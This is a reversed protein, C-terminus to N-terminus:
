IDMDAQRLRPSRERRPDGHDARARSRSSSGLLGDESHRSHSRGPRAERTTRSHADLRTGTPGRWRPAAACPAYDAVPTPAREARVRAALVDELERAAAEAAAKKAQIRQELVAAAQSELEQQVQMREQFAIEDDLADQRRRATVEARVQHMIQDAGEALQVSATPVPCTLEPHAQPATTTRQPTPPRSRRGPPVRGARPAASDLDATRSSSPVPIEEQRAMASLHALRERAEELRDAYLENIRDVSLTEVMDADGDVEQPKEGDADLSRKAAARPARAEAGVIAALREAAIRDYAERAAQLQAQYGGGGDGSGTGGAGPIERPRQRGPPPQRREDFDADDHDDDGEGESETDTPTDGVTLDADLQPPAMHDLLRQLLAQVNSLSPDAAALQTVAARFEGVTDESAAESWKNTALSFRRDMAAKYRQEYRGIRIDDRLLEKDIEERHEIRAQKAERAKQLSRRAKEICDDEAKLACSLTKDTTGGAMRVERELRKTEEHAKSLKSASAGKEQMKGLRDLQAQHKQVLTRRPAKPIELIRPPPIDAPELDSPPTPLTRTHALPPDAWLQRGSPAGRVGATAKASSKRGPAAAAITVVNTTTMM